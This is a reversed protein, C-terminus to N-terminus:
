ALCTPPARSPSLSYDAAAWVPAPLESSSVSVLLPTAMVVVPCTPTVQGKTLLTAACQHQASHSDSGCAEEHLQPVTSLLNLWCFLALALLATLRRSLPVKSSQQARTSQV